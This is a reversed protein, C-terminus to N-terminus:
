ARRRAATTGDPALVLESVRAGPKVKVQLFM